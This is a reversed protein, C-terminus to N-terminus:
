GAADYEWARRSASPSFRVLARHVELVACGNLLASLSNASHGQTTGASAAPVTQCRVGKGKGAPRDPAHAATRRDAPLHGDPLRKM